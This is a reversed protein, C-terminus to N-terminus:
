KMVTLNRKTRNYHEGQLDAASGKRLLVYRFLWGFVGGFLAGDLLAFLTGTIPTMTGKHIGILWAIFFPFERDFMKWMDHLRGLMLYLLGWVLATALSLIWPIRKLMWRLKISSNSTPM